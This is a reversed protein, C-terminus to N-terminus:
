GLEDPLVLELVVEADGNLGGELAFFGEVVDEEIARGAEALGGEGM